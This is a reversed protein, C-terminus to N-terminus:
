MRTLLLIMEIEIFDVRYLSFGLGLGSSTVLHVFRFLSVILMPLVWDNLLLLMFGLNSMCMLLLGRCCILSYFYRPYLNSSLNSM